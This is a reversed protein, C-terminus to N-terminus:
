IWRIQRTALFLTRVEQRVDVEADRRNDGDAPGATQSQLALRMNSLAQCIVDIKEEAFAMYFATMNEDFGSMAGRDILDRKQHIHCVRM